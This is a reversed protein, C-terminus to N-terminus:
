YVKATDFLIFIYLTVRIKGEFLLIMNPMYM